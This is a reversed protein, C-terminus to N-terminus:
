HRLRGSVMALGEVHRLHESGLRMEERHLRIGVFLTRFAAEGQPELVRAPLAREAPPQARRHRRSARPWATTSAIFRAGEELRGVSTKRLTELSGIEDFRPMKKGLEARRRRRSRRSM